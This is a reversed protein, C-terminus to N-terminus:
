IHLVEMARQIAIDWLAYEHGYGSFSEFIANKVGLGDLYKKFRQYRPYVNQDTTGCAIYLKPLNGRLVVEPLRDWVNEPSDLFAQVTPYKAIQNIEKMRIGNGNPGPFQEPHQAAAIRFQEGTLHAYPRLYEVERATSSLIAAGQFLEPHGLAFMLAGNGGMSLGAIFNDERQDSAPFWGYVLPMLEETLYDWVDFGDAFTTYNAYDSNLVSPCVVILDRDTAYRNINTNLLWSDYDGCSGHLLWLVRYKRGSLYFAKPTDERKSIDPLVIQVTTNVWLKKSYVHLTCLSM